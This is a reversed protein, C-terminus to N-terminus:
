DGAVSDVASEDAVRQSTRRHSWALLSRRTTDVKAALCRVLAKTLFGLVTAM